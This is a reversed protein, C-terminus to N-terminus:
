KEGREIHHLRESIDKKRRSLRSREAVEEPKWMPGFADHSAGNWIEKLRTEVRELQKELFIIEAGSAPRGNGNGPVKTAEEKKCEKRRENNNPTLLTNPPHQSPTPSPTLDLGLPDFLRTNALRGITGRPTLRFTAFGHKELFRKATRYEQKTMGYSEWDGLM